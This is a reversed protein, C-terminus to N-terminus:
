IWCASQQCSIEKTYQIANITTVRQLKDKKRFCLKALHWINPKRSVPFVVVTGKDVKIVSPNWAISSSFRGSSRFFYSKHFQLFIIYSNKLLLGSENFWLCAWFRLWQIRPNGTFLFMFCFKWFVSKVSFFVKKKFSYIFEFIHFVQTVRKISISEATNERYSLSRLNRWFTM